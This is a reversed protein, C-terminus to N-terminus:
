PSCCPRNSRRSGDVVSHTGFEPACSAWVAGLSITALYAVVTEPINPLYAVVRDGRRVGLRRLGTRARAVAEALEGHTLRLEGRTQSRGIVATRDAAPASAFVHEAYNLRAGPFWRAGPMVREVLVCEPEASSSVKFFDWIAQWFDEM